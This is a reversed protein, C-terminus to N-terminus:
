VRERCSARGIQTAFPMGGDGSLDLGLSQWGVLASGSVILGSINTELDPSNTEPSVPKTEADALKTERPVAKSEEGHQVMFDRLEKAGMGEKIADAIDWGLDHGNPRVIKISAAKGHLRAALEVAAKKGPDDADPWIVVRRGTLPSWDTHHIANSGGAWTTVAM